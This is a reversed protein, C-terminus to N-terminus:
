YRVILALGNYKDLYDNEIFVSGGGYQMNIEIIEDIIDDIFGNEGDKSQDNVPIVKNDKIIAAQFTGKRIFLTKGRGQNVATWIENIDSVLKGSSVAKGLESIREERKTKFIDKVIPWVDTIIHHSKEDDRNKNLHGIITEKRDAVKLYHNYNRSETVIMIPLPNEKITENVVKDVQNFFEEILIDQGAATSLKLKDTSFLTENKIPWDGSFEKVFLDNQAEILRANQRSIVLCYYSTQEHTARILDRTAFTQDIIVRNIVPIALRTFDAIEENAFLILSDLNFNHNIKESLTNLKKIIPLVQRKEFHELLRTEAEKILNKLVIADKQNQPKTRHTNLIITVCCESKIDKLLKLKKDM